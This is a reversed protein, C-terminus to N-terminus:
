VSIFYLEGWTKIAIDYLQYIRKTPNASVGLIYPYCQCVIYSLAFDRLIEFKYAKIVIYREGELTKMGILM